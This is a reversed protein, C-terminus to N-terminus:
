LRPSSCKKFAEEVLECLIHIMLIHIEQIRATTSSPAVLTIDTSQILRKGGCGTLGITKLKMKKAQQVGKLINRSNGSTSIAIVVDRPSGLAEIQRKFIVDFSYDNGLSTLLSTDTTLAIAPLGKREKQFRGVMEAAFHQSDAASGGNGFILIKGGKKLATIICAASEKIKKILTEDYLLYAKTTLSDAIIKKIKDKM